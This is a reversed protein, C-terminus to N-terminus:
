FNPQYNKFLKLIDQRMLDVNKPKMTSMLNKLNEYIEEMKKKKGIEEAYDDFFCNERKNKKMKQEFIEDLVNVLGSDIKVNEIKEFSENKLFNTFEALIEPKQFLFSINELKDSTSFIEM